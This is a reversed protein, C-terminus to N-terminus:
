IKQIAGNEYNDMLDAPLGTQFNRSVVSFPTLNRKMLEM